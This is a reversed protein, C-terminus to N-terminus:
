KGNQEYRTILNVIHEMENSSYRQDVPLPVLKAALNYEFSSADAWGCVNPWYQPVYVKNAILYGRLSASDTLYPYAMPVADPNLNVNLKNTASLSENLIMFNDRRRKATACYDVSQMIRSTLKSMLKIPQQELDGEHQTYDGYSDEPSLDIRKLLHAMGQWSEDQPPRSQLQCGCYLYAGDPVGFFKRCTYFTDVDEIPKAYFAQTNDVILEKGFVSSLHEVYNQKLGFYNTYVLAEQQKLNINEAIEFDNNIHYFSHSVGLKSLPELVADCTYFPLYVHKYGRARLVYELCNRGTNLAIAKCHYERGRPLELELFGGIPGFQSM